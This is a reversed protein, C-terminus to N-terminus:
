YWGYIVFVSNLNFILFNRDGEKILIILKSILYNLYFFSSYVAVNIKIISNKLTPTVWYASLSLIVCNMIKSFFYV